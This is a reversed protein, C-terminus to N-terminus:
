DGIILDFPELGRFEVGYCMENDEDVSSYFMTFVYSGGHSAFLLSPEVLSGAAAVDEPAHKILYNRALQDIEEIHVFVNQAIFPFEGLDGNQCDLQAAVPGIPTSVGWCEWHDRSYKFICVGLVEFQDM